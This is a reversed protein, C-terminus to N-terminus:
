GCVVESIRKSLAELIQEDDLYSVDREHYLCTCLRSLPGWQAPHVGGFLVVSAKGLAAGLHGVGGEGVFYLDADGLSLMFEEFNRPFHVKAPVRLENSIKEARMKDQPLALVLARFAFRDYLKNVLAAYRKEELRSEKRTTSASLLLLPESRAARPMCIYPLLEEPISEMEPAVLRLSLLAQHCGREFRAPANILRAHWKEDVVAVRKTAGLAFLFLNMLKMPSTKASIALDFEGRHRLALRLMEVYKNRKKSFLAVRDAMKPLYPLLPANREDAFLTLEAGPYREQLYRMLPYACLLDGLGNRRVVAIREM